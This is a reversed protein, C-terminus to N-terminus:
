VAVTWERTNLDPYEIHFYPIHVLNVGQNKKYHIWITFIREALFSIDRQQYRNDTDITILKEFDSLVTYWINCIEDFNEWCTIFMNNSFLLDSEFVIQCSESLYPFREKILDLVLCLDNIKHIFHYQEFITKDLKEPPPLYISSTNLMEKLTENIKTAGEPLADLSIRKFRDVAVEECRLDFVRRYHCFGIYDTPKIEKWIKYIGSLESWRANNLCYGNNLIDTPHKNLNSNNAANGVALPKIDGFHNLPIPAHFTTYISISGKEQNWNKHNTEPKIIKKNKSDIDIDILFSYYLDWESDLIPAENKIKNSHIDLLQKSSGFFQDLVIGGYHQMMGENGILSFQYGSENIISVIDVIKPLRNEIHEQLWSPLPLGYNKLQNAYNEDGWMAVEGCPFSLLVKKKAIRLMEHLAKKRDDHCLHELVDICIVFDFENEKFNNQLISGTIPEVLKGIEGNFIPELGTIKRQVFESIGFNGSGVELISFDSNCLEPNEKIIKAYRIKWNIM